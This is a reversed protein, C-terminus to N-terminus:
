PIEITFGDATTSVVPEVPSNITGWIFQQTADRCTPYLSPATSVSTGAIGLLRHKPSKGKQVYHSLPRRPSLCLPLTHWEPPSWLKNCNWVTLGFMKHIHKLVIVWQTTQLHDSRPLWHKHHEHHRLKKCLQHNSGMFNFFFFLNGWSWSKWTPKIKTNGTTWKSAEWHVNTAEQGSIILMEDVLQWRYFISFIKNGTLDEALESCM